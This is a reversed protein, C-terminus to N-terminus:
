KRQQKGANRNRKKNKNAYQQSSSLTKVETKPAPKVKKIPRKIPNKAMEESVQSKVRPKILKNQLYTQGIAFLGGAFWYLALGAPSSWSFFLIMLPSMLTMTKMQQRQAEPMDLMSIKSQIYYSIGALIALLASPEGLNIGLFTSQSIEPTLNVAQYMSTFIPMQILLPLCGIGGTMSINHDKYLAMMEQSIEAKEEQNTAEKQRRQIDDLDPKIYKMKEQQIMSKRMQSFNLPLIIIRVIITIVIIALGYNGGLSEALWVIAKGTPVVLYEYIFGTPNRDSDYQMCGTLFTVIALMQASFLLKKSIKM